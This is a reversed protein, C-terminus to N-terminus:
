GSPFCRDHLSKGLQLMTQRGWLGQFTSEYGNMVWSLFIASFYITRENTNEVSQIFNWYKRDVRYSIGINKVRIFIKQLFRKLQITIEFQVNPM